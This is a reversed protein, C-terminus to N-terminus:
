RAAVIAKVPRAEVVRVVLPTVVVLGDAEVVMLTLAAHASPVQNNLHMVKISVVGVIVWPIEDGQARIVVM